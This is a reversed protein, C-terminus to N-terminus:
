KLHREMGDFVVTWLHIVANTGRIGRSKNCIAMEIGLFLIPYQIGTRRSAPASNVRIPHGWARSYAYGIALGLGRM